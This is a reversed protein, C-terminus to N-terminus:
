LYCRNEYQKLQTYCALLVAALVKKISAVEENGLVQVFAILIKQM